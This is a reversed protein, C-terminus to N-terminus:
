SRHSLHKSIHRRKQDYPWDPMPVPQEPFNRLRWGQLNELGSQICGQAVHGLM